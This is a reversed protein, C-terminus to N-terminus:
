RMACAYPEGSKKRAAWVQRYLLRQQMGILRNRTDDDANWILLADYELPIAGGCHVAIGNLVEGTKTESGAIV